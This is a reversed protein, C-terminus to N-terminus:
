IIIGEQLAAIIERQEEETCAFTIRPSDCIVLGRLSGLMYSINAPLGKEPAYNTPFQPVPLEILLHPTRMSMFSSSANYNGSGQDAGGSGITSAISALSSAAGTVNGRAVSGALSAGSGILASFMSAYSTGTIPLHICATGSYQGIVGDLKSYYCNEAKLYAMFSGDIVNFKYKLHLTCGNWYEAPLPVYGYFPLFVKCGTMIDAYNRFIRDTQISGFDFTVYEKLVKRARIGLMNRAGIRIDVPSGAPVDGPVCHVSIVYDILKSNWISEGLSKLVDGVETISSPWTIEPFLAAGFDILSGADCKYVNIFGLNLISQPDTPFDVTDSHDDFSGGSYGEPGAGPGFEPSFNEVEPIEGSWEKFTAYSVLRLSFGAFIGQPTQISQSIGCAMYQVGEHMVTTFIGYTSITNVSEEPYNMLVQLFNSIYSQRYDTYTTEDTYIRKYIDYTLRKPTGLDVYEAKLVLQTKPDDSVDVVYVDYTNGDVLGQTEFEIGGINAIKSNNSSDWRYAGQYFEGGYETADVMSLFMGAPCLGGVNKFGNIFAM